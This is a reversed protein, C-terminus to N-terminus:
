MASLTSSCHSPLTRYQYVEDARDAIGIRSRVKGRCGNEVFPDAGDLLTGLHNPQDRSPQEHGKLDRSRLHECTIDEIGSHLSLVITDVAM